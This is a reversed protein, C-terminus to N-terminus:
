DSIVRKETIHFAAPRRNELINKITKCYNQPITFITGAAYIEKTETVYFNRSM